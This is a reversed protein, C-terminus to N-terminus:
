NYTMLISNRFINIGVYITYITYLTHTLHGCKHTCIIVLVIINMKRKTCKRRFNEHTSTYIEIGIEGETKYILINALSYETAM